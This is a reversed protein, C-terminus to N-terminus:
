MNLIQKNTGPRYTIKNLMNTLHRRHYYISLLRSGKPSNKFLALSLIKEDLKFRRAKPRIKQLRTQQMIFAYTPENDCDVINEFNPGNSFKEAYKLRKLLSGVSRQLKATRRSWDEVIKYFKKCWPTLHKERTVNV